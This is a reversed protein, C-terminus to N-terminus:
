GGHGAEIVILHARAVARHAMMVLTKRLPQVPGRDLLDGL